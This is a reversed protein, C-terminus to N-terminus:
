FPLNQEDAEVCALAQECEEGRNDYGPWNDDPDAAVRFARDCSVGKELMRRNYEAEAHKIVRKTLSVFVYSEYGMIDKSYTGNEYTFGHKKLRRKLTRLQDADCLSCSIGRRYGGLCYIHLEDVGAEHFAKLLNEEVIKWTSIRKSKNVRKNM